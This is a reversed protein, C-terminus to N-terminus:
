VRPPPTDFVPRFQALAANDNLGFRIAQSKKRVVVHAEAPAPFIACFPISHCSSSQQVQAALVVTAVPGSGAHVEPATAPSFIVAIALVCISLVTRCSQALHRIGSRWAM